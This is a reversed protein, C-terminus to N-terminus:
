NLINKDKTFNVLLEPCIYCIWNFCHQFQELDLSDVDFYHDFMHDPADVHPGAHMSLKTESMNAIANNKNMSEVLWLFQGWKM